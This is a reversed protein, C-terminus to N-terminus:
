VMWDLMWSGNVGLFREGAHFREGGLFRECRLFREGGGRSVTRGSFGNAGLFREGRSFGNVGSLKSGSAGNM